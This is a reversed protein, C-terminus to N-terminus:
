KFDPDPPEVKYIRDARDLGQLKGNEVTVEHSWAWAGHLQGDVIRYLSPGTEDSRILRWLLYVEVEGSPMRKVEGSGDWISHGEIKFFRGDPSQTITGWNTEVPLRPLSLPATKAPTIPKTKEPKAQLCFVFVAFAFVFAIARFM